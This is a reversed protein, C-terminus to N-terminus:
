SFTYRTWSAGADTTTWITSLDASVWRGVQATEFGLFGLGSAGAAIGPPTGSVGAAPRWSAGGDTSRYLQAGAVFLISASAAGVLQLGSGVTASPASFSVGGDTSTIAFQGTQAGRPACLLTLSGDPATTLATSDVEPSPSAAAGLQPCPEDRNVWSAGDDASTFLVAQAGGAGGAPNGYEALYAQHGSRALTVADSQSRPGPLTVTTWASSGIAATQVGFTCGPACAGQSTIRIVNGDLTELAQAGGPQLQWSAGGDTTLYLADPGFAYGVMSDAFRLHELCAIGQQCSGVTVNPPTPIGVWHAGGDTTRLIASCNSGTGSLCQATGLAWGDKTCVFTLDAVKFAAPVPGGVPGSALGTSAPTRQSDPTSAVTPPM